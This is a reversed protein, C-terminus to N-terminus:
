SSSSSAVENVEQLFANLLRRRISSASWVVGIRRPEFTIPLPIRVLNLAEPWPKAWDPVLSVGIGKDVMVAIAILPSLECRVNPKIGALKLYRDALRGGWLTRDYRILPETALIEHPDRRAMSKPALVVLPEERLLKWTCTKYLEFPAELVFAADIEDNEVARHLDISIGHKISVDIKPYKDIMRSLADPLISTLATTCAGLRLEGGISNDVAVSHLESVEKLVNRSRELIRAGAETVTVTRGARKILSADIERELTRIQQAVAAPSLNLIRSAAAMSGSDVVTIFTYLFKTDILIVM